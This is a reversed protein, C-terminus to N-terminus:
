RKSLVKTEYKEMDARDEDGNRACGPYNGTAMIGGGALGEPKTEFGAADDSQWCNLVIPLSLTKEIATETDISFQAYHENALKYAKGM